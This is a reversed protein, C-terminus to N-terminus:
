KAPDSINITASAYLYKYIDPMGPQPYLSLTFTETGETVGDLKGTLTISLPQGEYYLSGAPAWEVFDNQEPSSAMPTVIWYLTTGIAANNPTINFTVSEGETINVESPTMTFSLLPGLPGTAQVMEAAESDKYANYAKVRYRYFTSDNVPITLQTTASNLLPDTYGFSAGYYGSANAGDVNSNWAVYYKTIPAWGDDEPPDWALTVTRPSETTNIIQLNRPPGPNRPFIVFITTRSKASTSGVTNRATVICSIKPPDNETDYADERVLTYTSSTAGSIDVGLRQWQYTYTISSPNGTWTGTTVTLINGIVALGSIEPLVTNVPKFPTNDAAVSSTANSNASASGATNTATVVCRIASGVDASVLTYTSGTAGSINAGARQWQYAYTPTPTGTWTGTTTTLTQGM